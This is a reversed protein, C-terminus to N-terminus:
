SVTYSVRQKEIRNKEKPQTSFAHAHYNLQVSAFLQDQSAPKKM